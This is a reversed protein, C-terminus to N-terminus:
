RSRSKAKKAAKKAKKKTFFVGPIWSKHLKTTEALNDNADDVFRFSNMGVRVVDEHKLKHLQIQSDNVFTHNTSGNDQIFYDFATEDDQRAVAEIVAHEASVLEDDLSLDNSDARGISFRPKDIPTKIGAQGDKMQILMAM